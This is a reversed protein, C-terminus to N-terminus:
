NYCYLHVSNRVSGPYTTAYTPGFLSCVIYDGSSITIPPSFTATYNTPSSSTNNITTSIIGTTNTTTNIFYGTSDQLPNGLTGHAQSWVAKKVVCDEIVPFKRNNANNAFGM